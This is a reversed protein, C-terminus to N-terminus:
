IMYESILDDSALSKVKLIREAGAPSRISICDGRTTPKAYRRIISGILYEEDENAKGIALATPGPFEVPIFLTGARALYRLTANEAERRGVVIKLGPRLRMHRGVSLLELDESSVSDKDQLLDMVKYSYSKDTLLCGGAPSQYGTLGIEKALQLQAKRGRGSIDLLQERDLIGQEEPITPPLLKACLPRVVFGDCGSHKDILRIADKRQSMPRQGVVEGTVLFSAGVEEMVERAKKFSYIRCDVCPNVNKGHGFKPNRIIELFDMGRPKFIVPVDLQHATIMVPSDEREPHPPTFFATFHLAIVEIRQKKIVHIALASDLGGSILALARTRDSSDM